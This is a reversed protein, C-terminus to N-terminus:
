DLLRGGGHSEVVSLGPEAANVLDLFALCPAVDKGLRGKEKGIGVVILSQEADVAVQYRIM